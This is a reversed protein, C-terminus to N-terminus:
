YGTAVYSIGVSINELPKGDSATAKFSAAHPEGKIFKFTVAGGPPDMANAVASYTGGPFADKYGITCFGGAITKVVGYGGRVPPSLPDAYRYEKWDWVNNPQKEYRWLGAGLKVASGPEKLFELALKDAVEVGGNSAWVRLDVIEQVTTDKQTVRVLAIPHDSEDGPRDRRQGAGLGVTPLEKAATGPIAVLTTTGVGSWNRRRVILYWRSAIDPKPLSMTEYETFVDTVADGSGTGAEVRIGRDLSGLTSVKWDDPGAVSFRALPQQWTPLDAANIAANPYGYSTPMVTAM